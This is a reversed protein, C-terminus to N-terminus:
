HTEIIKVNKGLNRNVFDLDLGFISVILGNPIQELPHVTAGIQQLNRQAKQTLNGNSFQVTARLERTGPYYYFAGKKIGTLERILAEFQYDPSYTRPPEPEAGRM